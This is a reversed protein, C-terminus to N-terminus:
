FDKISSWQVRYSNALCYFQMKAFFLIKCGMTAQADGFLLDVLRCLWVYVIYGPPQPQEKAVSFELIAYAFNVSDWHYLVRRRFPLRSVLALLFLIGVLLRDQAFLQELYLAISAVAKGSNAVYTDKMNLTM